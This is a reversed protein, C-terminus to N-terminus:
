GPLDARWAVPDDHSFGPNSLGAFLANAYGNASLKLPMRVAKFRGIYIRLQMYKMKRCFIAHLIM